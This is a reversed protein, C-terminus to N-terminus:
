GASDDESGSVDVVRGRPSQRVEALPGDVDRQISLLVHGARAEAVEFSPGKEPEDVQIVFHDPRPDILVTFLEGHPGSFTAGFMETLSGEPPDEEGHSRFHGAEVTIV